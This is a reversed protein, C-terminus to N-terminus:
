QRPVPAGRGARPAGAIRRWALKAVWFLVTATVALVPLVLVGSQRLEAPMEDAQGLFFSVTAIWMAFGMRWLHRLLRSVGEPWGRRLLRLDGAVALLQVVAFALTMGAPIGGITGRSQLAALSVFLGYAVTGAGLAMLGVHPARRAEPRVALWGTAVFYLTMSGIQVNGPNPNVFAAILVASLTLVAMAVAFVRGAGIHAAGGKRAYLAVFGALLAAVGAAIHIWLM